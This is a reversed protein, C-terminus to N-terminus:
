KEEEPLNAYEEDKKTKWRKLFEWVEPADSCCLPRYEYHGEQERLFANLHNKKKHLKKGSLSKLAQADYLYDRADCLEAIEYQEPNLGLLDLSVEDALYIALKGGVAEHFWTRLEEWASALAEPACYPVSAFLRGNRKMIYHLANTKGSLAYRIEFYDKWLYEGMFVSDCTNNDRLAYYGSLRDADEATIRKFELDM